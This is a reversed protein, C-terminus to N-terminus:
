RGGAYNMGNLGQEWNEHFGIYRLEIYDKYEELLERISMFHAEWKEKDM